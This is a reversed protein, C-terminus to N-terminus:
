LKVSKGVLKKQIFTLTAQTGGSAHDFISRGRAGMEARKENNKFLEELNRKLDGVNLQLGAKSEKVLHVLQAQTHMYPGYICPVKYWLPELINHGGVKRTFSGAVIAIQALQYCMRLSGMVDVILVQNDHLTENQSFRGYSISMKKLTAEVQHLREPHRPVLLIKLSYPPALLPKIVKLLAREEGEHSSGITVCKERIGWKSKLANLEHPDLAPYIDDLKLNPIVSVQDSSFGLNLFRSRYVQDQVLLFDLSSFYWKAFPKIKKLRNYSRNSLKGNIIGIQAGRKKCVKLFNPWIDTEVLLVLDLKIGQLMRNMTSRFDIPLMIHHDAFSTVKKAEAHGTETISSVILTSSPYKSKLQKLLQSVAKIEGVSVAHVWITPTGSKFNYRVWGLKQLLKGKYKKKYFFEFFFVPLYFVVFCAILLQYLFEM